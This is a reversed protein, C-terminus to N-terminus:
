NQIFQGAINGQVLSGVVNVITYAAVAVVLGIIANFIITKGSGARKGDGNDTVFLFGGYVLFLVSIAGIIYTLFRAAGLIFNAITTQDVNNLRNTGILPCSGGKCTEPLAQALTTVPAFSFFASFLALSIMLGASIKKLISM